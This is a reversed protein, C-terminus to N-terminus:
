ISNGLEDILMAIGLLLMMPGFVTAMIIHFTQLVKDLRTLPLPEVGTVKLIAAELLNIREERRHWWNLVAAGTLFTGFALLFIAAIM